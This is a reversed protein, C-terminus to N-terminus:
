GGEQGYAGLGWCYPRGICTASAGLALSKFIDAVRRIGGDILVPLGESYGLTVTLENPTM